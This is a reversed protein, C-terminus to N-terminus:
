GRPYGPWRSHTCLLGGRTVCRSRDSFAHTYNGGNSSSRLRYENEFDGKARHFETSNQTETTFSSEFLYFWLSVSSWLTECLIRLNPRWYSFRLNSNRPKM